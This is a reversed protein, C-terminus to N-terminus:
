WGFWSAQAEPGVVLKWGDVQLAGETNLNRIVSMMTLVWSTTHNPHPPAYPTTPTPHHMHHIYRGDVELLV